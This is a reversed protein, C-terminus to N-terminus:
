TNGTIIRDIRYSIDIGTKKNSFFDRTSETWFRQVDKKSEMRALRAVKQMISKESM